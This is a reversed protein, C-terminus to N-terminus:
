EEVGVLREKRWARREKSAEEKVCVGKREIMNSSSEGKSSGLVSKGGDRRGLCEKRWATRVVSLLLLM